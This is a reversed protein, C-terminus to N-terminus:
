KRGYLTDYAVIPGSGELPWRYGYKAIEVFGLGDMLKTYEDYLLEGVYTPVTEGIEMAVYDMHSLLDKAGALVLHEAFQVDLFLLNYKQMDVCELKIISDLRMTKVKIVGVTNIVFLEPLRNPNFPFLSSSDGMGCVYFDAEGDTDSAAGQFCRIDNEPSKYGSVVDLLHRYYDPTAEVYIQNKIGNANWISVEGSGPGMGCQIVGRVNKLLHSHSGVLPNVPSIGIVTESM